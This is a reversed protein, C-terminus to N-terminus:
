DRPARDQPSDDADAAPLHSQCDMVVLCVLVVAVCAFLLVNIM